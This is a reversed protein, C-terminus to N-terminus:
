RSFGRRLELGCKECKRGCRAKERSLCPRDVENRKAVTSSGSRVEASVM